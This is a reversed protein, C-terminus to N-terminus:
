CRCLQSEQEPVSYLRNFYLQRAILFHIKPGQFTSNVTYGRKCELVKFRNWFLRKLGPCAWVHGPMARTFNQDSTSIAKHLFEPTVYCSRQTHRRGPYGPLESIAVTEARNWIPKPFWKRYVVFHIHMTPWVLKLMIQNSVLKLALTFQALM